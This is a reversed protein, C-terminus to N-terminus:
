ASGRVARAAYAIAELLEARDGARARNSALARAEELLWARREPDHEAGARHVLAAVDDAIM